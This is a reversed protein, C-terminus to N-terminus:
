LLPVLANHCLSIFNVIKDHNKMCAEKLFMKKSEREGSRLHKIVIDRGNYKGYYVIGFSGGGVEQKDLVDEWSFQLIDLELAQKRVSLVPFKFAAM